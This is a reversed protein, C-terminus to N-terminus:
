PCFSRTATSIPVDEGNPLHSLDHDFIIVCVDRGTRLGRGKIARRLGMGQPLSASLIAPDPHPAMTSLANTLGARRRLAFAM